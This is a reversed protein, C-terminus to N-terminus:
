AIHLLAMGGMLLGMGVWATAHLKQGFLVWGGLSTGIIGLGGWLAYAVAIDMGRVAYALCSFALIVLVLSGIAYPLRRFGKSKVLLLTAVIELVAAVVVAAIFTWDAFVPM